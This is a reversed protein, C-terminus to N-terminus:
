RKRHLRDRPPKTSTAPQDRFRQVYNWFREVQDGDDLTGLFHIVKRRVPDNFMSVVEDLFAAHDVDATVPTSVFLRRPDLNMARCAKEITALDAGGGNELKGITTPSVKLDAQNREARNRFYKFRLGIESLWESPAPKPEPVTPVIALTISSFLQGSM